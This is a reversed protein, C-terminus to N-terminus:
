WRILAIEITIGPGFGLLIGYDGPQPRKSQMFKELVFLLTASSMNGYQQLVAVSFDLADAPLALEEALYTLIKMGGPHVVWHQIDTQTLQNQQLLQKLLPPVQQRLIDPIRTSLYIQYGRDGPHFAMEEPTQYDSFSLSDLLQPRAAPDAGIIVASAGDAFLASGLINRISRDHQFHITCIELTLVAIRAAPDARAILAAQYLAPLLAHCGMGVISTRRLSPSLAMNRALTVDLSPTDTGTCSTVILHSLQDGSLNAQQLAKQIANEGLSPAEQNYRNLRTANGPNAVLWAPSELVSYRTNIEAARFVMPARRNNFAPALGDCIETQTYQYPPVNTGLGLIAPTTTM